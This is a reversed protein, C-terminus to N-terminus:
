VVVGLLARMRTVKLLGNGMWNMHSHLVTMMFENGGPNARVIFALTHKDIFHLPLPSPLM